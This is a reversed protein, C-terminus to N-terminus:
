HLTHSLGDLRSDSKPRGTVKRGDTPVILVAPKNSATVTVDQEFVCVTKRELGKGITKKVCKAPEAAKETKAAAAPKKDEALVPAAAFAVMVLGALVRKM